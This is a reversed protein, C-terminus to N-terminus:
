RAPICVPANSYAASFRMGNAAISDIHPTSLWNSVCSM